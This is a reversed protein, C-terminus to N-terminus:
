LLPRETEQQNRCWGRRRHRQRDGNGLGRSCGCGPMVLGREALRNELFADFVQEVPGCVYPVVRINSRELLRLVCGSIAGCLLVDVKRDALLKVRAPVDQSLLTMETTNVVTGSEITTLTLRQAVDFVPSVRGEWIPIAIAMVMGM